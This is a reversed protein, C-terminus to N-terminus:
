LTKPERCPTDARPPVFLGNKEHNETPRARGALRVLLPAHDSLGSERLRPLYEAHEIAPVLPPSVFAHDIRFGGGLPSVWSPEFAGARGRQNGERWADRYGMSWLRGMHASFASTSKAEDMRHRGTNFDGLFVLPQDRRARAVGLLHSWSELKERPRQDEPLHLAILSINWADLSTELWRQALCAPPPAAPSARLPTRSAILTGNRNRPPDTCAQHPWGHDGLVARLQGGMTSRYENIAIADPAIDLLALAIEPIRRAGGGHLINWTLLTAM